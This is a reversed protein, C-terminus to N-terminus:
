RKDAVSQLLSALREIAQVIEAENLAGFGFRIHTVPTTSQTGLTVFHFDPHSFTHMNKNCTIKQLGVWLAMGGAPTIIEVKDVFVRNFQQIAFNRRALYIKRMKRIHKKVEGSTMLYSVALETITNGQRDVLLVQEAILDILQQHATIYGLRLAPIFVKSMSGIHVVNQSNPLSALPPIPRTGYHFEHDYDDEIVWFRHVNSLSLLKLRRPMSMTVTTPYQHHPTTYVAIVKHQEIIRALEDTDLGQQDLGCRVVKFGNSEFTAVAPPYSLQECVIVGDNPDLVKSTLYIGMQSGRVACVQEVSLNVFRDMALMDRICHRLELAGRPDGYGLQGKRTSQNVARKYAKSLLNYPALRPDPVGDNAVSETYENSSSLKAPAQIHLTHITKETRVLALNGDSLAQEPLLNVVFTGRRPVTTLWGQSELEEYVLQITKRNVALQQALERSSPLKVNPKLRGARIENILQTVLKTHFSVGRNEHLWVKIDWPQTMYM